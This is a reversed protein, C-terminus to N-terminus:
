HFVEALMCRASGGGLKEIVDISVVVLDGYEKLKNRQELTLASYATKSMVIKAKGETSRVELINGAMSHMQDLSIPIIDKKAHRLATLVNERESPSIICDPAIIAFRSGISMMVNTHYISKGNKYSHFVILKYQMKKAFADLATLNTRPSLSAFAIRNVRDLVLSGTGELIHGDKEHHTLDVTSSISIGKAKLVAKLHDVQRELRRNEALMPYLVLLKKGKKTAHLSFWNNPFVADPTVVDKRSPLVVVQVKNEKLISVMDQFEQMASIRFDPKSGSLQQFSNTDATQANYQFTDPSIMVLTDTSQQVEVIKSKLRLVDAAKKFLSKM